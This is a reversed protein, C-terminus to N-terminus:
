LYSVKKENQVNKWGEATNKASIAEKICKVSKVHLGYKDFLYVKHVAAHVMQM